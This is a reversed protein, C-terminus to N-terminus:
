DKRARFVIGRGSEVSFQVWKDVYRGRMKKVRLRRRQVGKEEETEIEVVGDSTGELRVLVDEEVGAGVTFFLRGNAGKVKAGISHVFAVIFDQKLMTFLPTLSDLFVDSEVGLSELCTSIKIGLTTLDTSSSVFYEETSPQGATGSYCDIFVLRARDKRSKSSIGLEVMNKRIKSPFDTNTIFVCSRNMRLSESVLHELLVTKGSGPGGSVMIVSSSPVGGPVLTDFYEFPFPKLRRSHKVVLFGVTAVLIMVLILAWDLSSQRLFSTKIEREGPGSINMSHSAHNRLTLGVVTANYNVDVRYVGKPIRSISLNGRSGTAGKLFVSSDKSVEVIAGDLPQGFYDFFIVTLDYIECTLVIEMDGFLNINGTSAVLTEDWYVSVTYVGIKESSALLANVWGSSNTRGAWVKESGLLVRVDADKLIRNESDVTRVQLNFFQPLVSEIPLNVQTAASPDDWHLFVSVQANTVLISFQLTSGKEFAYNSPIPAALLIEQIREGLTVAVQVASVLRRTDQSTVEFLSANLVGRASSVASLFVRFNAYGSVPLSDPLSPYLFFSVEENVSTSRKVGYPPATSLIRNDYQKVGLDTHAYLTLLVPTVQAPQSQVRLVPPSFVATFLLSVIVVATSARM